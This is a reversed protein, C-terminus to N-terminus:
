LLVMFVHFHFCDLEGEVTLEAKTSSTGFENSAVCRYFGDDSNYVENILLQQTGDPLSEIIIRESSRIEVGDKLWQIAPFPNGYPLCQFRAKGGENVRCVTLPKLFGPAKGGVLHEELSKKM